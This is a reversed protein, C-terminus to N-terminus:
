PIEYTQKVGNHVVAAPRKAAQETLAILSLIEGLLERHYRVLATRNKPNLALQGFLTAKLHTEGEQMFEEALFAKYRQLLARRQRLIKTERELVLPWLEKGYAKWQELCEATCAPSDVAIEPQDISPATRPVSQPVAHFAQEWEARQGAKWAAQREFFTQAVAVATRVSNIERDGSTEPHRAAAIQPELIKEALALKEEMPMRRLKEKIQSSYFPDTQLRAADIGVHDLGLILPDSGDEGGLAGDALQRSKQRDRQLYDKLDLLGLHILRGERDFWQLADKATSPPDPVRHLLDFVSKPQGASVAGVWAFVLLGVIIGVRLMIDHRRIIFLALIGSGGRGPLPNLLYDL